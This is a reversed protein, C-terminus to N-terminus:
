AEKKYIIMIIIDKVRMHITYPEQDKDTKKKKKEEKESNQCPPWFQLRLFIKKKVFLFLCAYSLISARNLSPYPHICM